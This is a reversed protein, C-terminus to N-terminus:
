LHGLLIPPIEMLGGVIFDPEKAELEELTGFGHTIGITMAVGAAKGATIDVGADGIMVAKSPSVGLKDLALSVGEPHPKHKEVDSGQVIADFYHVVGTHELSPILNKFRSSCAATKVGGDRLLELMEFLGDYAVILGLNESQFRSHTDFLSDFDGDPALSNYIDTIHRGIYKAITSREPVVQGHEALFTGDVDFIAAEITKTM